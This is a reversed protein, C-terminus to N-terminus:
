DVIQASYKITGSGGGLDIVLYYTGSRPPYIVAPSKRAEGGYYHYSECRKYKQFNSETLLMVNTARDLTVCVGQGTGLTLRKHLFEM